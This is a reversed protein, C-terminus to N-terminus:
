NYALLIFLYIVVYAYLSAILSIHSTISTFSVYRM